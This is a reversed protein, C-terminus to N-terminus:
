EARLSAVPDVRAARRAPLWTAVLGVTLLVASVAAVTRPDRAAVGYLLGDLLRSLAVAGVLGAAVGAAVQVLGEGVFLRVVQEPAAGVALRVGVERTRRSVSFAVVGYVGLGALLVAVAAFYALIGSSAAQGWTTERRVRDLTRVAYVPLTADVAALERRVDGAVAAPDGATRLLLAMSRWAARGVPLHVQRRSIATEEGFEEYQVDAVVGVVRFWLTEDGDFRLRRGVADAPPAGPWLTAALSRSVVVVAAEPDLCEGRTFRRGALMPVGLTEFLGGTSGVYTAQVEQGAQLPRGEAEVAVAGGGDDVPIAGTAAAREVGPLAELREAIQELVAARAAAEDYRPGVLVTRLSLMRATDFGADGRVQAVYSQVLLAAAFVLSVSLAVEAAVLGRQLRRGDRGGSATRSGAALGSMLGGATEARAARLAPLLGFVLSAAVSVALSAALVGPSLEFSQWFPLPEPNTSLVLQLSGIGFLVGLAGGALSLLLSETLLQRVIRGASAGLARRMSMEPRRAGERALLLNAINACAILLLFVVSGALVALVPRTERGLLADRLPLRRFSWGRNTAPHDAALRQALAALEGDVAAPTAGPRLRVLAASLYRNSREEQPDFILPRWLEEAEPFAFGQPMVGVVEAARGDVQLTRGVIRPDGGLRQWLGHGLVVVRPGGPRGEEDRFTRGLAPHVGLLAFLGPTVAGGRVQEPGDGGDLVARWDDAAGVAVCSTCAVGVDVLDPLSLRGGEIGAQPYAMTLAYLGEARVWPLPAFLMGHLLTFIATCGGTAVAVTLVIVLALGPRRGWGRLAFRLDQKLRDM